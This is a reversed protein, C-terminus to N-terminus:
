ELSSFDPNNKENDSNVVTVADLAQGVLLEVLASRSYQTQEMLQNLKDVISKKIRVSLYTYNKDLNEKKTIILRDDM